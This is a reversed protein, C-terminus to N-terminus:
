RENENRFHHKLASLLDMFKYKWAHSIFVTAKGVKSGNEAKVMDCYSLGVDKTFEKQFRNNVDETTLGELADGGGCKIVFNMVGSLKMGDLPFVHTSNCNSTSTSTSTSSDLTLSTFDISDSNDITRTMSMIVLICASSTRLSILYVRSALFQTVPHMKFLQTKSTPRFIV